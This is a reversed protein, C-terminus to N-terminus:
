RLVIRVGLNFGIILKVNFLRLGIHEITHHRRLDNTYPVVVPTCCHTLKYYDLSLRRVRHTSGCNVGGSM